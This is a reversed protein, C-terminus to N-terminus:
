HNGWIFHKLAFDELQQMIGWCCSVGALIFGKHVINCSAHYALLVLVDSVMCASQQVVDGGWFICEQELLYGQIEDSSQWGVSRM